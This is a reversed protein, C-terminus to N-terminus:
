FIYHSGSMTIAHNGHEDTFFRTLRSTRVMKGDINGILYYCKNGKNISKAARNIKRNPIASDDTMLVASTMKRPISPEKHFVLIQGDTCRLIWKNGDEVANTIRIYGSTQLDTIVAIFEGSCDEPKVLVDYQVEKAFGKVFITKKTKINM